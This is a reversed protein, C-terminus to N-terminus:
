IKNSFLCIIVLNILGSIKVDLLRERERENEGQIASFKKLPPIASNALADTM